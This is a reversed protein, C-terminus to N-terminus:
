RFSGHAQAKGTAKGAGEDATGAGRGTTTRVPRLPGRYFVLKKQELHVITNVARNLLDRDHSIIIVTHPYRRVYDELWLTGELDLYNTPEDLLLLDPRAFLVAALAVRM